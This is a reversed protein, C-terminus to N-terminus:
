KKYKLFDPIIGMLKDLSLSDKVIETVNMRIKLDSLEGFANKLATSIGETMEKLARTLEQISIGFNTDLNNIATEMHTISQATQGLSREVSKNMDSISHAIEGMRSDISLAVKDLADGMKEIKETLGATADVLTKIKLMDPM